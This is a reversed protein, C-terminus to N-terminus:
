SAAKWTSLTGGTVSPPFNESPRQDSISWLSLCHDQFFLWYNWYPRHRTWHLNRYKCHNEKLNSGLVNGWGVKAVMLESLTRQASSKWKMKLISSRQRWVRITKRSRTLSTALTVHLWSRSLANGSWYHKWCLKRAVNVPSPRTLAM